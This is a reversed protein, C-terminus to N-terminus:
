KEEVGLLHAKMAAALSSYAENDPDLLEPDLHGMRKGVQMIQNIKSERSLVAKLGACQQPHEGPGAPTMDFMVDYDLTKHCQFASGALIGELRGEPLRFLSGQGKKFPCTVCPRRLKFM